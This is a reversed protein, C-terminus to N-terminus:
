LYLSGYDEAATTTTLNGYDESTTHAVAVSGLDEDATEEASIKWVRNGLRTVAAYVSFINQGRDVIYDGKRPPGLALIATLESARILFDQVKRSPQGIGAVNMQTMFASCPVITETNEIVSFDKSLTPPRVYTVESLFSVQAFLITEATEFASDLNM